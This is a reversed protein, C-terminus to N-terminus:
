LSHRWLMQTVAIPDYEQDLWRNFYDQLSVSYVKLVMIVSLKLGNPLRVEDNVRVSKILIGTLKNEKFHADWWIIM